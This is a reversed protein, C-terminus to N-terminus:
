WREYNFNRDLRIVNFETADVLEASGIDSNLWTETFAYADYDLCSTTSFIQDIKSNLGRM